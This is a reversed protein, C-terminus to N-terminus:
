NYDDSLRIEKIMKIEKWIEKNTLVMGSLLKANIKESSQAVYGVHKQKKKKPLGVKRARGDAAYIYEEDTKIVLFFKGADRGNLMCVISGIGIAM